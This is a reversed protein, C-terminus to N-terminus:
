RTTGAAPQSRLPFIGRGGEHLGQLSVEVPISGVPLCLPWFRLASTAAAMSSGRHSTRGHVGADENEIRAPVFSVTPARRNKERAPSRREIAIARLWATSAPTSRRFRHRCILAEGNFLIDIHNRRLRRQHHATGRGGPLADPREAPRAVPTARYGDGAPDDSSRSRSGARGIAHATM